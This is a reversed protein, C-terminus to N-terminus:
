DNHPVIATDHPCTMVIFAAITKGKQLTTVEMIASKRSFACVADVRNVCDPLYRRKQNQAKACFPNIAKTKGSADAARVFYTPTRVFYLTQAKVFRTGAHCIVNM